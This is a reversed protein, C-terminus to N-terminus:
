FEQLLSTWFKVDVIFYIKSEKYKVPKNFSLDIM